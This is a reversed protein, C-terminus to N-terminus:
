SELTKLLEEAQSNLDDETQKDAKPAFSMINLDEEQPEDDPLSVLTEIEDEENETEDIPATELQTDDTTFSTMSNVEDFTVLQQKQVKIPSILSPKPVDNMTFIYSVFAPLNLLMNTDVYQREALRINRKNDVVESLTKRAEVYRTEDDVLITGSMNAVWEATDPDQLRYVLKFKTNEVVAGVVADGNLDAPCDKLDAKAQHALLMHVGKDRAAGLGEMAPKSIHYKLEDLFIAIPRPEGNIRDRMEALQFLRILIMKQTILIKSNRMSGIIYCCGGHDFVDQLRMGGVANISDVLSLEELKGYFAKITEQIGQVFISNFLQKFSRREEESAKLPAERAAKRDDIRYFDAVDGKEALSFGAVLLEEIQEPTSDALLDLQPAKKNLDILYFPKGAKECAYKMLHPAWEDNKPDMVFVGEEALILQYLILGTAVGKGAGTTGIVDAHQKQIESLPIYQPQHERDLGVFVGKNLDIYDLPDYKVTEPLFHKVTRVDTREDRAMKTKKTLKQKVENMAPTLLRRLFIHLAIGIFFLPLYLYKTWPYYLPTPNELKFSQVFGAIAPVTFNAITGFVFLLLSLVILVRRFVFDEETKEPKDFYITPMILGSIFSMVWGGYFTLLYLQTILFIAVEFLRYDATNLM